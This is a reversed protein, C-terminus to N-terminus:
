KGDWMKLSVRYNGPTAALEFAREYEAFPVIHSVMKETKVTGENLFQAGLQFDITDSGGTGIIYYNGYHIQNVNLNLEPAPFGAAFLLVKGAFKVIRFAQETAPTNGVAVIVHDVGRGKSFRKAFDAPDEERPNLTVFGLEKAISLRKEDIESVAVQCGFARATQANVLGLNGAGVVVLYDGPKVDLRRIGHIATSLPELYCAQEPPLEPNMRFAETYHMLKYEAMGFSGTINGIHFKKRHKCYDNHGSRCEDCAGCGVYGVAIYDGINVLSTDVENGIACVIGCAEHGPAFPMPKSNKGRMGNWTQWDTTCINCNLIRVLIQEKDPEPLSNEKLILKGIDEMVLTQYEM